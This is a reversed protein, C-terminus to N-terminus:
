ELIVALAKKIMNLLHENEPPKVIFDFAGSLCAKSATEKNVYNALIIVPIPPSFERLSRLAKLVEFEPTTADMDIIVLAIEERSIIQLVEVASPASIAQYSESCLLATLPALVLKDSTITLIKENSMLYLIGGIVSLM